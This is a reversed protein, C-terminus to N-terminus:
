VGSCLAQFLRLAVPHPGLLFLCFNPLWSPTLGEWSNLPIALCSTKSVEGLALRCGRVIVTFIVKSRPMVVAAAQGWFIGYQFSRGEESKRNPPDKRMSNLPQPKVQCLLTWGTPVPPPPPISYQPNFRSVEQNSPLCRLGRFLRRSGM